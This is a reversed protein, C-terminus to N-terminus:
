DRHFLKQFDIFYKLIRELKFLVICLCDELRLIDMCNTACFSDSIELGEDLLLNEQKSESRPITSPLGRTSNLMKGLISSPMGVHTLSLPLPSKTPSM